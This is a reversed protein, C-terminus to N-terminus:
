GRYFKAAEEPSIPNIILGSGIEVGAWVSGRPTIKMYLHQDEDHIVQHFYYNYPLNLKNIKNLIRKLFKAFSLREDKILETINDLHRKPMIWIEYNHMPAFPCFVIMNDDEFVRRPSKREKKIVECYVCRGHKLKYAQIRQSKDKLHPPLFDTAFIQSHAHRISAGAAGGDNKFILIYDIKKDLSIKKTRAAYAKLIEAIREVSLNEIEALHNPTEVVVEQQGYAKPNNVSVSPFKNALIKIAWPENKERTENFTALVKGSRGINKPCFVCNTKKPLRLHEPREIDHPRKGRHPAIIVYKEQIYDKRIESRM